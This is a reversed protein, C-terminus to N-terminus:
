DGRLARDIGDLEDLIRGREGDTMHHSPDLLADELVKARGALRRKTGESPGGKAAREKARAEYEAKEEREVETLGGRPGKGRDEDERDAARMAGRRKDRGKPGAGRSLDSKKQESEAKKAASAAKREQLRRDNAKRKEPEEPRLGPEQTPIALPIYFGGRAASASLKAAPDSPVSMNTKKELLDEAEAMSAWDESKSLEEIQQEMGELVDLPIFNDEHVKPPVIYDRTMMLRFVSREPFDKVGDEGVILSLYDIGTFGAEQDVELLSLDPLIDQSRGWDWVAKCADYVVEHAASGGVAVGMAVLMAYAIKDVQKPINVKPYVLSAFCREVKPSPLYVKLESDYVLSQGLIPGEIDDGDSWRQPVLTTEKIQYGLNGAVSVFMHVRTALDEDDEVHYFVDREYCESVIVASAIEDVRSTGPVGSIMHWFKPRATVGKAFVCEPRFACAVWAALVAGMDAPFHEAGQSSIRATLVRASLLAIESGNSTDQQVIDPFLLRYQGNMLCVVIFFDDAYSMIRSGGQRVGRIIDVLDEAGGGVWSHGILSMSLNNPSARVVGSSYAAWLQGFLCTAAASYNGYPRVKVNWNERKILEVKNKVLVGLYSRGVTTNAFKNFAKEGKTLHDLLEQAQEYMLVVGSVEVGKGVPIKQRKEYEPHPMGFGSILNPQWETNRRGDKSLSTHPNSKWPLTADLVDLLDSGTWEPLTCSVPKHFGSTLRNFFAEQSGGSVVYQQCGKLAELVQARWTQFFKGAQLVANLVQHDVPYIPMSPPSVYVGKKGEREDPISDQIVFGAAEVRSIVIAKDLQAPNAPPPPMKLKDDSVAVAKRVLLSDLRERVSREKESLRDMPTVLLRYAVELNVGLTKSVIRANSGVSM